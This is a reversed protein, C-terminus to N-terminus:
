GTVDVKWVGGRVQILRESRVMADNETNQQHRLKPDIFSRSIEQRTKGSATEFVAIRHVGYRPPAFGLRETKERLNTIILM